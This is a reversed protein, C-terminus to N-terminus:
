FTALTLLILLKTILRKRKIQRANFFGFAPNDHTFQQLQFSIRSVRLRNQVSVDM